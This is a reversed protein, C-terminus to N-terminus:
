KKSGNGMAAELVNEANAEERTFEATVRGRHMVVIRDSLALLEPMESTILLISIGTKTLEDILAYIEHKSGVDVGRTPEDLLIVQPNTQLWKALVVKQQNGGSLVTLESEYSPVRLNLRKGLRMASEAMKRADRWGRKTFHKLDAICINDIVSMPLVLGTAKRDNTLLVVGQDIADKPSNIKLEKGNLIIREAVPREYGGFIGMLLESSGSGQLGALGVVEGARVSLSVSDVMKQTTGGYTYVTANEVRFKEEGPVTLGDRKIQENIERGVMANILKHTPLNAAMDTVILKGDRLVTIRDALREIEEMRHSIYVIGRGEAKLRDILKFLHEADQTNLASSPEDMIIVRANLSVARSIEILQRMSIPLDEVLKKVDLDIGVNKLLQRAKEEQERDLVFGARTKTRGMFLNEIVSLCPVLTLEQHIVSIGINNADIPSDPHILRGEYFIEGEFSTHVGGLIKILTTKGAGNEGALVHVEGPYISFDVDELVRVNGFKKGINKMQVIPVSKAEDM